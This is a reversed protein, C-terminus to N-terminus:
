LRFDLGRKLKPDGIPMLNENKSKVAIILIIVGIAVLPFGIEMWGFVAGDKGFAPMIMWYLDYLHAFMIWVSMFLLRKPNMKSPQSLLGFYPVVFHIFILLISVIMWSGEWRHM